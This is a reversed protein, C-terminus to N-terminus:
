NGYPPDTYCLDIKTNNVLKEVDDISTSDGCMLRHNGMVYIDGLKTKPDNPVAPVEDEDTLGEIVEPELITALEKDDFGLLSLDFELDQLETMELRLM